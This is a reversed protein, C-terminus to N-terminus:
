RYSKRHYTQQHKKNFFGGAFEEDDIIVYWNPVVKESTRRKMHTNSPVSFYQCESFKRFERRRRHVERVCNTETKSLTLNSLSLWYFCFVIPLIACRLNVMKDKNFTLREVVSPELVHNIGIKCITRNPVKKSSAFLCKSWWFQSTPIFIETSKCFCPKDWILGYKLKEHAM